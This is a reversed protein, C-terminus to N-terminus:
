VFMKQLLGKKMDQLKDLKRQHLTIIKELKDFFDGIIKQEELQRPIPLLVSSFEKKTIHPQASGVFNHKMFENIVNSRLTIYLYLNNVSITNM